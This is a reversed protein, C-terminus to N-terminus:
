NGNNMLISVDDSGMNAVAVDIDLDNDFDATYVFRSYDGVSYNVANGFTGDGNNMFISVDNSGYNAVAMDFDDDGDVM